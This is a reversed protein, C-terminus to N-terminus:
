NSHLAEVVKPNNLSPETPTQEEMLEQDIEMMGSFELREGQLWENFITKQTAEDTVVDASLKVMVADRILIARRMERVEEETLDAAAKKKMFDAYDSEFQEQTYSSSDKSTEALKAFFAADIDEETIVIGFEEAKRNLIIDEVLSNMTSAAIQSPSDLMALIYDYTAQQNGDIDGETELLRELRIVEQLLQFRFYRARTQYMEVTIEEGDLTAVAMRPTQVLDQWLGVGVVSLIILILIGVSILLTRNITKMKQDYPNERLDEEEAPSREEISDEISEEELHQNADYENNEAM